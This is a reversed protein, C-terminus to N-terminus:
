AEKEAAKACKACLGGTEELKKRTTRGGCQKCVVPPHLRKKIAEYPWYLDLANLFAERDPEVFKEEYDGDATFRVVSYLDPVYGYFRVMLDYGSIQVVHEAYTDKSTKFDTLVSKWPPASTDDTVIERDALLDLTGAAGQPTGDPNVGTIMALPEEVLIPIIPQNEIWWKVAGLCYGRIEENLADNEDYRALAIEQKIREVDEGKGLREAIDHAENGRDSAKGRKVFPTMGIEELAEKLQIVNMKRVDKGALALLEVGEVAVNFAWMTLSDGKSLIKAVTSASVLDLHLVRSQRPTFHGAEDRTGPEVTVRVAYTNSDGAIRGM